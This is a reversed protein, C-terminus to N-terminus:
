FPLDVDPLGPATLHQDPEDPGPGDPGPPDPSAPRRRHRHHDHDRTRDTRPDGTPRWTSPITTTTLGSRPHRWTRVGAATQITQWGAAEKDRNTAACLPGLNDVDTHGPRGDPRAPWWPRAHDIDAGRAPRDCGPGTCTDHVAAVVDTLWGPPRRTARGVGLVTGDDDVVVTRLLAGRRDILRRAAASTLKLRGGVLGTLLEAPVAPDVLADFPLRVLLKPPALREWWPARGSRDASM